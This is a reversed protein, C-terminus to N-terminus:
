ITNLLDEKIVSWFCISCCLELLNLYLDMIFGNLHCIWVYLLFFRGLSICQTVSYLYGILLVIVSHDHVTPFCNIKQPIRHNIDSSQFSLTDQICYVTLRVMTRQSTKQLHSQVHPTFVDLDFPDIYEELQDM